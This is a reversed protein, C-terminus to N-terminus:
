KLTMVMVDGAMNVCEGEQLMTTTGDKKIISGDHMARTGKNLNTYNQLVTTRGNRMMIMKGNQMMVHKERPMNDMKYQKKDTDPITDRYTKSSYQGYTMGKNYGNNFLSDFYVNRSYTGNPTTDRYMGTTYKGNQRMKDLPYTVSPKISQYEKNVLTDLQSYVSCSLGMVVTVLILKIM